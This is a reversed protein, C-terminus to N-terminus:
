LLKRYDTLVSAGSSDDWTKYLGLKLVDTPFAVAANPNLYFEPPHDGYDLLGDSFWVVASIDRYEPKDFLGLPIPAEKKNTMSAKRTYLVREFQSHSIMGNTDYDIKGSSIAVAIPITSPNCSGAEKWRQIQKLKADLAGTIRLCYDSQAFPNRSQKLVGGPIEGDPGINSVRDSVNQVVPKGSEPM